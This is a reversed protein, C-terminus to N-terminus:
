RWHCIRRWRRRSRRNPHPIQHTSKPYRKRWVNISDPQSRRRWWKSDGKSSAGTKRNRRTRKGFYVSSTSRFTEKVELRCIRPKRKRHVTLLSGAWWEAPSCESTYQHEIIANISELLSQLLIHNTENAFLFSPSSMSAFLQLLKSSANAGLGQVYAAVNNVIALLAPYIADLKGKSATM